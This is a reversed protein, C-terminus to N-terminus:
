ARTFRRGLLAGAVGGVLMMSGHGILVHLMERHFCCLSMSAAALGGCAVGLAATRWTSAAVFAHRFAFALLALSVACLLGALAACRGARDLMAWTSADPDPPAVALTTLAFLVPAVTIVVALVAASSGLGGRGPRTAAWWALGMALLPVGLGFVLHGPVLADDLTTRHKAVAILAAQFLLAIAIAVLLHRRHEARTPAAGAPLVPPSPLPAADGAYPDPVRSLLGLDPPEGSM